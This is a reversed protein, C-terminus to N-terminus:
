MNSPVHRKVPTAFTVEMRINSLTLILYWVSQPLARLTTFMAGPSCRLTEPEFGLEHMNWLERLKGDM